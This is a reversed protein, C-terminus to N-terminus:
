TPPHTMSQLLAALRDLDRDRLGVFRRGDFRGTPSGNRFVVMTPTIRIAFADWLPDQLDTIEAIALTAAVRSKRAVFKPAFARTPPCWTAGFCVAYTGDRRLRTGDFDGSRLVEVGLGDWTRTPTSM